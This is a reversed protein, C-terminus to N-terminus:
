LYEEMSSVSVPLFTSVLKVEVYPMLICGTKTETCLTLLQCVNVKIQLSGFNLSTVFEPEFSALQLLERKNAYKLKSM